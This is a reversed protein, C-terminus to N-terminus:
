TILEQVHAVRPWLKYNTPEGYGQILFTRSGSVLRDGAKASIDRALFISHSVSLRDQQGAYRAVISSSAPQIDCRVDVMGSVDAFNKDQTGGPRKSPASRQLTVKTRLMSQLSM